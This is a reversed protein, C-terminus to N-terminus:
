NIDIHVSNNVILYTYHLKGEAVLQKTYALLDKGRVNNVVIDSAHGILHKSDSVGGEERNHLICRCGSIVRCAQGFHERIQDLIKVLRLDINNLGCGCKCTFESQKFYKINDWSLQNDRARNTDTGAVGDQKVGLREQESKIVEILKANTKTGYIGDVVLGYARQFDKYAQKTGSGAIGDINKNYLGLYKLNMQRQKITLM